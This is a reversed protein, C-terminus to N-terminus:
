EKQGHNDARRNQATAARRNYHTSGGHCPGACVSIDAALEFSGTEAVALFAECQKSNLMNM